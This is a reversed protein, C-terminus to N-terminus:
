YSICASHLADADGFLEAVRKRMRKTAEIHEPNQAYEVYDLKTFRDKVKKKLTNGMVESPMAKLQKSITVEEKM